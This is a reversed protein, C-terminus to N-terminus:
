KVDPNGYQVLGSERKVPKQPMPWGWEVVTHISNVSTKKRSVNDSNQIQFQLANAKGPTDVFSTVDWSDIAENQKGKRVPADISIWPTPSNPWGTGIAWQL